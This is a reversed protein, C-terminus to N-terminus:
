SSPFEPDSRLLEGEVFDRLPRNFAHRSQQWWTVIGPHSFMRGLAERFGEWSEPDLMGQETQYVLNEVRRLFALMFVGFQQRDEEDLSGLDDLGGLYARALDPHQAALDAVASIDRMTEQFTAARVSKTNQRVQLALYFLTAIVGLAGLLEAIAGMAEWNM